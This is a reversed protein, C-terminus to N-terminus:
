SFTIHMSSASTMNIFETRGFATDVFRFRQTYLDPFICVSVCMCLYIFLGSVIQRVEDTQCVSEYVLFEGNEISSILKGFPASCENIDKV